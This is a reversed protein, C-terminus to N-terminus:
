QGSGAQWTQGNTRHHTLFVCGIVAARYSSLTSKYTFARLVEYDNASLYAEIRAALDSGEEDTLRHARCKAAVIRDVLPLNELFLQAADMVRSDVPDLAPM